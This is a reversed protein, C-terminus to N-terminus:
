EEDNALDVRLRKGRIKARNMVQLVKEAQAGDVDVLAYDDALRISGIDRGPIRSENTIAGVIDGPTIGMKRGVNFMLGVM